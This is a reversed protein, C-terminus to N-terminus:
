VKISSHSTMKSRQEKPHHIGARHIQIEFALTTFGLLIGGFLLLLAPYIAAMDVTFDAAQVSRVCKPKQTRFVKMQRDM